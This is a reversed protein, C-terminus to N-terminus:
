PMRGLKEELADSKANTMTVTHKMIGGDQDVYVFCLIKQSKRLMMINRYGISCMSFQSAGM